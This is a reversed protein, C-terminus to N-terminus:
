SHGFPTSLTTPSASTDGRERETLGTGDGGDDGGDAREVSWEAADAHRDGSVIVTSEIPEPEDASGTTASGGGATSSDASSVTRLEVPLEIRDEDVTCEVRHTDSEGPELAEIESMSYLYEDPADGTAEIRVDVAVDSENEVRLVVNTDRDGLVDVSEVGVSVPSAQRAIVPALTRIPQRREAIGVFTLSPDAIPTGRYTTEAAETAGADIRFDDFPVTRDFGESGIEAVTCPRSLGNRLEVRVDTESAREFLTPRVVVPADEVDISAGPLSYSDGDARVTVPPVELAPADWAAHCRSVRTDGEPPLEVEVPEPEDGASLTATVPRNARNEIVVTEEVAHGEPVSEVGIERSLEIPEAAPAGTGGDEGPASPDAGFSFQPADPDSLSANTPEPDNTSSSETTPDPVATGAAESGSDTTPESGSDTTPESGSEATPKSSSDAARESASGGTTQSDSRSGTQSERRTTTSPDSRERRARDSGADTTAPKSTSPSDTPRTAPSPDTPRDSSPPASPAPQSPSEASALPTRDIMVTASETVAETEVRVESSGSDVAPLALTLRDGPDLSIPRQIESPLAAGRVRAEDEIQVPSGNEFTVDVFGGERGHISVSLPRAPISVSRSVPDYGDDTPTVVLRDTDLPVSVTRRLSSRGTPPEVTVDGPSITVPPLDSGDATEVTVDVAATGNQIARYETDLELAAGTARVRLTARAEVPPGADADGGEVYEITATVTSAEADELTFSATTRPEADLSVARSAPHFSADDSDIRVRGRTPSGTREIDVTVAEGTRVSASQLALDVPPVSARPRYVAATRGDILCAVSGDTATAIRGARADTDGRRTRSDAGGDDTGLTEGETIAGDADIRLVRSGAAAYVHDTGSPALWEVERDADWRAEGTDVDIGELRGGRLSVVAVPDLVGLDTVAGDLDVEHRIRGESDFATLYWSAGALFTDGRGALVVNETVDAHPRDVRFRESGDTADLGVLGGDDTAAVLLSADPLACLASAGDIEAEFRRSGEADFGLVRDDLAVYLHPDVALGRPRGDVAFQVPAESAADLVSVGGSVSALAIRSEGVAIQAVSGTDVEGVPAYEDPAGDHTM